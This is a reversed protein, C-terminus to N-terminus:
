ITPGRRLTQSTDIDSLLSLIRNSPHPWSPIFTPSYLITGQVALPESSFFPVASFECITHDCKWCFCSCFVCQRFYPWYLCKLKRLFQQYITGTHKHGTCVLPYKIRAPSFGVAEGLNNLYQQCIDFKASASQATPKPLVLKKSFGGFYFSLFFHITYYWNYKLLM